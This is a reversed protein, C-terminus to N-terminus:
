REGAGHAQLYAKVTEVVSMNAEAGITGAPTKVLGGGSM